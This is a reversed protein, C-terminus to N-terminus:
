LTLTYDLNVTYRHLFLPLNNRGVGQKKGEISRVQWLLEFDSVQIHYNVQKEGTRQPIKVRVLIAM